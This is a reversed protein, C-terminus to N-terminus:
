VDGYEDKLYRRLSEPCTVEPPLNELLEVLDNFIDDAGSGKESKASRFTQRPTLLRTIQKVILSFETTSEWTGGNSEALPRRSLCDILKVLREKLRGLPWTKVDDEWNCARRRMIVVEDQLPLIENQGEIQLESTHCGEESAIMEAIHGPTTNRPVELDRPAEDDKMICVLVSEQDSNDDNDDALYGLLGEPIDPCRDRVYDLFERYKRSATIDRIYALVEQKAERMILRDIAELILKFSAVDGLTQGQGNICPQNSLVNVLDRAEQPWEESLGHWEEHWAAM